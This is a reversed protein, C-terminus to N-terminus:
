LTIINDRSNREIRTVATTNSQRAPLGLTITHLCTALDLSESQALAGMQSWPPRGGALHITSGALRPPPGDDALLQITGTYPIFSQAAHLNAAYDNPPTELIYSLPQFFNRPIDLDIDIVTVPIDLEFFFHRDGNEAGGIQERIHAAEVELELAWDPWPRELTGDPVFTLVTGRINATQITVYEAMWDPVTLSPNHRIAFRNDRSSHMVTGDALYARPVAGNYSTFPRDDSEIYPLLSRFRETQNRTVWDAWFPWIERLNIMSLASTNGTPFMEVTSLEIGEIPDPPLFDLLEPGSVPVIQRFRGDQGSTQSKFELDGNEQREAFTVCVEDVALDIEPNLDASQVPDVGLTLTKATDLNRRTLRFKPLGTGSYDWWGVADPIQRILEALAFAFSGDRFTITPCDFCEDIEGIDVPVRLTKLRDFLRVIHDRINGRPCRFEPREIDDDLLDSLPTRELWFWPGSVEVSISLDGTNWASPVRSVIGEFIRTGDIFVSLTQGPTPIHSDNATVLAPIITFSLQDVASAAYQVTGSEAVQWFERVTEDLGAGEEGKITISM